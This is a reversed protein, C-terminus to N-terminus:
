IFAVLFFLLMSVVYSSSSSSNYILPTEAEFKAEVAAAASLSDDESARKSPTSNGVKFDADSMSAKALTYDQESYTKVSATEEELNRKTSSKFNCFLVLDPRTLPAKISDCQSKMDAELKDRSAIVVCFNILRKNVSEIPPIMFCTDKSSNNICDCWTDVIMKSLDMQTTEYIYSLSFKEDLTLIIIKVKNALNVGILGPGKYNKLEKKLSTSEFTTGTISVIYDTGDVAEKKFDSLAKLIDDQTSDINAMILDFNIRSLNKNTILISYASQLTSNISANTGDIITSNIISILTSFSKSYPGTGFLTLYSKINDTSTIDVSSTSAASSTITDAVLLRLSDDTNFNYKLMRRGMLLKMVAAKATAFQGDVDACSNSRMLDTIEKVKSNLDMGPPLKGQAMPLLSNIQALNSQVKKEQNPDACEKPAEPEPAPSSSVEAIPESSSESSVTTDPTPSVEPISPSAASTVIESASSVVESAVSSVETVPDSSVSSKDDESSSSVTTVPPLPSSSSEVSISVNSNVPSPAPSTSSVVSSPKNVSVSSSSSAIVTSSSSSLSSSPAPRVLGLKEMVKDVKGQIDKFSIESGASNSAVQKIIGEFKTKYNNLTKSTENGLSKIVKESQSEFDTATKGSLIFLKCALLAASPNDANESIKSCQTDNTKFTDKIKKASNNVKDIIVTDDTQYKVNQSIEQLLKNTFVYYEKMFQANSIRYSKENALYDSNEPLIPIKLNCVNEHPMNFYSLASVNREMIQKALNASSFSIDSQNVLLDKDISSNLINAGSIINSSKNVVGQYFDNSNKIMDTLMTKLGKVVEPKDLLFVSETKYQCDGSEGIVLEDIMSQQIESPYNKFLNAYCNCKGNLTDKWASIQSSASGALVLCVLMIVKFRAVISM